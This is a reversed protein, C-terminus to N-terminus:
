KKWDSIGYKSLLTKLSGDKRMSLLKDSVLKAHEKAKPDKPSFAVYIETDKVCGATKVTDAMKKTFMYSSVVSSDEIFAGIRGAQLKKLNLELPNDGSVIDVKKSDKANDIIYKDITGTYTYDKIVGITIGALSKIDKFVWPSDKKVFFCNTSVGLPTSPYVFDEADTKAAGVIGTYKGERSEAISRAWNLTEYDIKNGSPELAAKAIEIMYGPNPAKPDCNYPCWTDARLSITEAKAVQMSVALCVMVALNKM